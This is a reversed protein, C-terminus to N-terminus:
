ENGRAIQFIYARVRAWAASDLLKGFKPPVPTNDEIDANSWDLPNGNALAPRATWWDDPKTENFAKVAGTRLQLSDNKRILDNLLTLDQVANRELKLRISPIPEPIGFRDGPYVLTEGGGEFHFWPDPGPATALWRVFGGTNQIWPRLVDLTIHSSPETVPPTGGYTWVIDGRQTLIQPAAPYWSFMGGGCVWFNIVGALDRWQREMTWSVDARFVFKVPSDAPIALKFMRAYERAYAYDAPFRAEDGDWPFGKYRKKQNFFLEFRTRTWGKERFHREMESVVNVFERQYGPEGWAQFSAPWEPNIPLYAFPIPRAERHTKAFASGDLLPGYHRDFLTWDGIHKNKGWGELRPAFEPGVKGGHGYGLQHMIGRNEYFLRHYSHILHFFEPSTFFDAGIRNRLQPYQDALWSTGYTNHDILVADQDPVQVSLVKIRIPISLTHGGSQLIASANYDDGPAAEPSVWLDVWFAQATQKSIRNEADPLDAAYPLKIPILADPFYHGSAPMFHFWERYVTSEIKAAAPFPSLALRYQSPKPLNIVLHFSSYGARASALVIQKLPAARATRDPQVIGGFPDPRLYEPLVTLSPGAALLTGSWWVAVLLAAFRLRNQKSIRDSQISSVDDRV